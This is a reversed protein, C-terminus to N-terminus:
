NINLKEKIFGAKDSTVGNVGFNYLEKVRKTDNVTWIYININNNKFINVFEQNIYHTDKIDVGGLNNQKCFNLLSNADFNFNCWKKEVVLYTEIRKLENKLSKLVEAFCSILVIKNKYDYKILIDKLYSVIENKVKIDIFLKKGGPITEIVEELFPMKDSNHEGIIKNSINASKLETSSTNKIILNKDGTRKTSKDHIAVIKKVKTLRVDIEVADVNRQWALNISSLTNEPANLSESRHSIFLFNSSNM